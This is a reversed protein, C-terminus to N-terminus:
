TGGGRASVRSSTAFCCSALELSTMGPYWAYSYVTEGEQVRLAAPFSDRPSAASDWPFSSGQDVGHVSDSPPMWHDAATESIAPVDLADQPLDFM